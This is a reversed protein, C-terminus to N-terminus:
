NRHILKLLYTLISRTSLNNNINKESLHGCSGDDTNIGLFGFNDAADVHWGNEGGWDSVVSNLEHVSVHRLVSSLSVSNEPELTM